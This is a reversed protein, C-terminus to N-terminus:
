ARRVHLKSMSETQFDGLFLLIHLTTMSHTLLFLSKNDLWVYCHVKNDLITSVSIGMSDGDIAKKNIAERSFDVRNARTTGVLNTGHELLDAALHVNTFFNDSYVHFGKGWIDKCVEMVVKYGLNSTPSNNSKGTYVVFNNIYGNTSDAKCWIKFGRKITKM